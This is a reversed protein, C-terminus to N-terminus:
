AAFAFVKLGTPNKKIFSVFRQKFAVHLIKKTVHRICKNNMQASGSDLIFTKTIFYCVLSGSRNTSKSFQDVGLNKHLVFISDRMILVTSSRSEESQFINRFIEWWGSLCPPLVVPFTLLLNTTNSPFSIIITLICFWFWWTLRNWGWSAASWEGHWYTQIFWWNTWDPEPVM